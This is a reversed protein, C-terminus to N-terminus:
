LRGARGWPAKQGSASAPSSWPVRRHRRNRHAAVRHPPATPRLSPRHPAPSSEIVLSPPPESSPLTWPPTARGSPFSPSPRCGTTSTLSEHSSFITPVSTTTPATDVSHTLPQLHSPLPQRRCPASQAEAASSHPRHSPSLLLRLPLSIRWQLWVCHILACTASVRPLAQAAPTHGLLQCTRVLSAVPRRKLADSVSL